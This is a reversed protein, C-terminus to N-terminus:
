IFLEVTGSDGYHVTCAREMLLSIIIVCRQFVGMINGWFYFSTLSYGALNLNHQLRSETDRAYSVTEIDMSM